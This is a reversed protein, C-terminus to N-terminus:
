DNYREYDRADRIAEDARLMANELATKFCSTGNAEYVPYADALQACVDRATDRVRWRLERAGSATRLDLDDYRVATSLSIKELPGNLPTSEAHYYPAIVQVEEGGQALAQSVVLTLGFAGALLALPHKLPSRNPM